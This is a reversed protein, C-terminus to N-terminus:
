KVRRCKGAGLPPRTWRFAGRSTSRGLPPEFSVPRHSTVDRLRNTNRKRRRQRKRLPWQLKEETFSKGKCPGQFCPGLAFRLGIRLMPVNRVVLYQPSKDTIDVYIQLNWNAKPAGGSHTQLVSASM